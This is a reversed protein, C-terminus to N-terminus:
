DQQHSPLTTIKKFFQSLKMSKEIIKRNERKELHQVNNLILCHNMFSLFYLFCVTCHSWQEAKLSHSLDMYWTDVGKNLGPICVYFKYMLISVQAGTLFSKVWYVTTNISQAKIKVKFNQNSFQKGFNTEDAGKQESQQPLVRGYLQLIILETTIAQM